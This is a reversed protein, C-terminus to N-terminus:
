LRRVTVALLITVGVSLTGQSTMHRGPLVRIDVSLGSTFNGTRRMRAHTYPLIVCVPARAPLLVAESPRRAHSEILIQDM